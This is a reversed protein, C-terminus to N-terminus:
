IGSRDHRRRLQTIAALHHDDHEAVFFCHDVVTMPQGLRPHAAERSLEDPALAEIRAVLESRLQRFERLLGALERTNHDADWTVRNQLDAARLTPRGAAFDDLRGLWLRELDGLHGVNEQISWRRDERATLLSPTLGAVREELRPPTGRLREVIDPLAEPPLGLVFRRDFWVRRQM